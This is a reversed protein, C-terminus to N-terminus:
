VQTTDCNGNISSMFESLLDSDLMNVDLTIKKYFMSEICTEICM